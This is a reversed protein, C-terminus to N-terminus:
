RAASIIPVSKGTLMLKEVCSVRPIVARKTPANMASLLPCSTSNRMASLPLYVVELLEEEEELELATDDETELEAVLEDELEDDEDRKVM